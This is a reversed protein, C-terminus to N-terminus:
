YSGCVLDVMGTPLSSFRLLISLLSNFWMSDVLSLTLQSCLKNSLVPSSGSLSGYVKSAATGAWAWLM